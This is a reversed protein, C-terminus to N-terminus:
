RRTALGALVNLRESVQRLTRNQVFRAAVGLNRKGSRNLDQLLKIASLTPDNGRAAKFVLM